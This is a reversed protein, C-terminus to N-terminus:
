MACLNLDAFSFHFDFYCINSQHSCRAYELEDIRILVSSSLYRLSAFSPLFYTYNNNLIESFAQIAFVIAYRDFNFKKVRCLIADSLTTAMTAAATSEYEFEDLSADIVTKMMQECKEKNFKRIPELRYTPMLRM